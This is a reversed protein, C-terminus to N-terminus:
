VRNQGIRYLAFDYKTPDNKDFKALAETLEMATQLNTQKNQILNLKLGVSFLHTDMPIILRSTSLHKNSNWLGIDINDLRIMWKLFLNWRKYTSYQKLSTKHMSQGLLFQYGRSTRPYLNQLHNITHLIGEIIQGNHRYGTIFINELTDDLRSLAIFLAIIDESAQFRYYHAQLAKKISAGLAMNPAIPRFERTGCAGAQSNMSLTIPLKNLKPMPLIERTHMGLTPM